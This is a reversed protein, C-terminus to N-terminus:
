PLSAASQLVPAGDKEALHVSVLHQESKKPKFHAIAKQKADWADNAHLEHRKGNFFCVYGNLQQPNM